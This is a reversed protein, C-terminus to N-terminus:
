YGRVHVTKVTLDAERRGGKGGRWEGRERGEAEGEGEKGSRTKTWKRRRKKRRGRGRIETGKQDCGLPLPSM